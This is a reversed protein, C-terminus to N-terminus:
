IQTRLSIFTVWRLITSMLVDYGLPSASWGGKLGQLFTLCVVFQTAEEVIVKTKVQFRYAKM